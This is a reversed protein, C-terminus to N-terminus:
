IPLGNPADVVITNVMYDTLRQNTDGRFILLASLIGFLGSTIWGLLGDILFGRVFMTGWSAARGTREDLVYMNLLQKAPTQGRGYVIFAWIMYGIGLTVVWLLTSLLSGGFRRERTSVVIGAPLILGYRGATPVRSMPASIGPQSQPPYWIGDSARWYGPAPALEDIPSIPAPTSATLSDLFPSSNPATPPTPVPPARPPEPEVYDPHSEPDYWKGDSAQWWGEGQSIDAVDVKWVCPEGLTEDMIATRESMHSSCPVLSWARSEV